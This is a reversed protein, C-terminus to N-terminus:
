YGRAIEELSQDATYPLNIIGVQVDEPCKLAMEFEDDLEEDDDDWDEEYWDDDDRIEDEIQKDTLDPTEDEVEEFEYIESQCRPCVEESKYNWDNGCTGCTAKWRSM